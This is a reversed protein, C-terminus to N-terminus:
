FKMVRVRESMWIYGKESVHRKKCEHWCKDNNLWQDSNCKRRDFGCKCKCSIDKTFFKSENKGTIMNFVYINLDEKKGPVCVNNSLDNLTNCSGVYEDLLYSYM